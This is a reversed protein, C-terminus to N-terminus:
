TLTAYALAWLLGEIVGFNYGRCFRCATVWQPAYYDIFDNIASKKKIMFIRLYLATSILTLSLVLNITM